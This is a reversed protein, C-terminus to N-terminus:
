EMKGVARSAAAPYPLLEPPNRDAELLWVKRTAFYRILERNQEPGMDRAWVVKSGDLDAANFVYERFPDHGADYRVIVLHRGGTRNLREIMQERGLRVNWTTAWTMPYNLVFPAPAVGMAIRVVVMTACVLTIARPAGPRGVTLVRIGQILLAWLVATLPAVYHPAFWPTAASAAAVAGTLWLFIRTKPSRLTWAVAVLPLTLVPGLYFVLIEAKSLLVQMYGALTRARLFYELEFGMYFDRMAQHRYLPPKPRPAQWVFIQAVAYTSRNVSYPMTVPSGFVRWNYYGMLAAAPLLVACLTLILVPCVIRRGAAKRLVILLIGAAAAFAAGEYPRTNVLIVIGLAGLAADRARSSRVLRPLAGFVLAGGIAAMAGGWYSDAWYSFIGLRVAALAAGLLAWGPPFWGRLAWCIAACMAGVSLVVGTFAVGSLLTGAALVLGQAPPYMSAYAPQHEEHMTEFHTWLPHTPNALRGHLFTDAALLYSFEDQVGPVPVGEVPLVALRLVVALAAVALPAARHRALRALCMVSGRFRRVFAFAFPVLAAEILFILYIWASVWIGMPLLLALVAQGTDGM